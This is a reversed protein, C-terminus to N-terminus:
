GGALPVLRLFVVPEGVRVVVEEDLRTAQRGGVFVAFVGRSFARHCRAVEHAEDPLESPRAPLRVAGAAAQQRIEGDTLYQRDLVQRCRAADAGLERIQEAVAARILEGVTMRSTLLNVLVTPM